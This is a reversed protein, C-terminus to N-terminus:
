SIKFFYGTFLTADEPKRPPELVYVNLRELGLHDGKPGVVVALRPEL